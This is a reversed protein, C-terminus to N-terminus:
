GTIAALASLYIGFVLCVVVIGVLYWKKKTRREDGEM